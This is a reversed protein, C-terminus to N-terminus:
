IPGTVFFLGMLSAMEGTDRESIEVIIFFLYTIKGNGVRLGLVRSSRKNERGFIYGLRCAYSGIGYVYVRM